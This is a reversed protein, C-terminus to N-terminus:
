KLPFARAMWLLSLRCYQDKAILYWLQPFLVTVANLAFSFGTILVAENIAWYKAPTIKRTIPNFPKRLKTGRAGGPPTAPFFYIQNKKRVRAAHGYRFARWPTTTFVADSFPRMLKLVSPESACVVALAPIM